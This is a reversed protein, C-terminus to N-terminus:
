SQITKLHTRIQDAITELDTIDFVVVDYDHNQLELILHDRLTEYSLFYKKKQHYFTGQHFPLGPIATGPFRFMWLSPQFRGIQITQISHFPIRIESKLATIRHVGNLKLVCEYQEFVIQKGM